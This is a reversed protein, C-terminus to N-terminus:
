EVRWSVKHVPTASVFPAEGEDCPGVRVWEFKPYFINYLRKFVEGREIFEATGLIAVVGNL